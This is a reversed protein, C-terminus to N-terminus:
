YMCVVANTAIVKVEKKKKHGPPGVPALMVCMCFSYHGCMHIPLVVLSSSEHRARGHARVLPLVDSAEVDPAAQTSTLHPSQSAWKAACGKQFMCLERGASTMSQVGKVAQAVHAFAADIQGSQRLVSADVEVLLKHTGPEFGWKVGTGVSAVASGPHVTGVVATAHMDAATAPAPPTASAAQRHSRLPASVGQPSTMSSDRESAHEAVPKAPHVAPPRSAQHSAAAATSLHMHEQPQPVAVAVASTDGTAKGVAAADTAHCPMDASPGSHLQRLLCQKGLPPSQPQRMPTGKAVPQDQAEGTALHEVCCAAAETAAIRVVAGVRM